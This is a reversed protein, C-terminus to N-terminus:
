EKASYLPCQIGHDVLTIFERHQAPTLDEFTYNTRSMESCHNFDPKNDVDLWVYKCTVCRDVDNGIAIPPLNEPYKLENMHLVQNM